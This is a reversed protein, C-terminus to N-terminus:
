IEVSEFMKIKVRPNQKDFEKNMAIWRIQNDDKFVGAKQMADAYIEWCNTIDKRRKTGLFAIFYVHLEGTMPPKKYANRFQLVLSAETVALRKSKGLFPIKGHRYIPRNNKKIVPEGPILFEIM